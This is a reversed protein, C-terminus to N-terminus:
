FGRPFAVRLPLVKGTDLFRLRGTSRSGSFISRTKTRAPSCRKARTRGTMAGSAQRASTPARIASRATGRSIWSWVSVIMAAVLV